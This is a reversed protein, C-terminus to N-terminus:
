QNQGLPHKIIQSKLHNTTAQLYWTTTKIDEHGMMKSLSYIDCGGEILLTAFTRRLTHLTFQVKSCEKVLKVIRVLTKNAIGANVQSSAFFKACTIGRKGRELVYQQLITSLELAMPIIRDKNGKGSRIMITMKELDVHTYLLELVETKRLGAYLIIAMIAHNRRRIFQNPYPYNDASELVKRANALSLIIPLHRALKPVEIGKAPNEPM